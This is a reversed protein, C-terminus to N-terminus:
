KMVSKVTVKVFLEPTFAPPPELEFKNRGVTSTDRVQYTGTDYAGIVDGAVANGVNERSETTLQTVDSLEVSKKMHALNMSMGHESEGSVIRIFAIHDRHRSDMNTQIRSVFGSFDKNYPDVENGEM